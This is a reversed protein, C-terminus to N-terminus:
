CEETSIWQLEGNVAGLVHTGTNPPATFPVWGGSQAVLLQGDTAGRGFPEWKEDSANWRLLENNMTGSPGAVWNKSSAAWQMLQGEVSGAGQSQWGNIDDWQPFAGEAAGSFPVWNKTTDDWKLFQGKQTGGGTVKWNSTTNWQPFSGDTGPDLLKWKLNKQDWALMQGDVKPSISKWRGATEDWYFLQGENKPSLFGWQQTSDDTPKYFFPIQGNEQPSVTAWGGEEGDTLGKVWTILAGAKQGTLFSYGNNGGGLLQFGNAPPDPLPNKISVKPQLHGGMGPSDTNKFHEADYIATAALFCKDLDDGRLAYPYGGTAPNGASQALARFSIPPSDM